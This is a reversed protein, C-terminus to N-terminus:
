QAGPGSPPSTSEDTPAGTSALSLAHSMDRFRDQLAAPLEHHTVVGRELASYILGVTPVYTYNRWLDRAIGNHFEHIRDSLTFGDLQGAEWEAFASAVERLAGDLERRYAEGALTRLEKMQRKTIDPRDM